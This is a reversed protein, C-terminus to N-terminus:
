KVICFLTYFVLNKRVRCATFVFHQGTDIKSSLTCDLLFSSVTSASTNTDLMMRISVVLWTAFLSSTAHGVM